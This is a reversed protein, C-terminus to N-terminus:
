GNVVKLRAESLVTDVLREIDAARSILQSKEGSADARSRFLEDTINLAAVVAMRVPDVSALQQSVHRMKDDVYAALEAVYQPDLDSRIPYRQGQIDVQVVRPTM